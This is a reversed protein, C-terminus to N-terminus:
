GDARSQFAQAVTSNGFKSVTAKMTEDICADVRSAEDLTMKRYGGCYGRVDRELRALLAKAQPLNTMETQDFKFKFEFAERKQPDASAPGTMFGATFAGAIAVCAILATKSTTKM